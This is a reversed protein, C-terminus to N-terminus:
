PVELLPPREEKPVMEPRIQRTIDYGQMGEVVMRRIPRVGFGVECKPAVAKEVARRFTSAKRDTVSQAAADNITRIGQSVDPHQVGKGAAIASHGKRGRIEAGELGEVGSGLKLTREPM